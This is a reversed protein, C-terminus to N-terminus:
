SLKQGVSTIKGIDALKQALDSKKQTKDNLNNAKNLCIQQLHIQNQKVQALMNMLM